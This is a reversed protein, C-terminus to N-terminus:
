CWPEKFYFWMDCYVYYNYAFLICAMIVTFVIGLIIQYPTLREENDFWKQKKEKEKKLVIYNLDIRRNRFINLLHPKKVNM